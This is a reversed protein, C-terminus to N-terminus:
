FKQALERWQVTLRQRHEPAAIAILARARQEHGIGRLDAAGYETVVIDTDMRGLSVPGLAEGPAVIRSVKGKVGSAALAVIRLGGAAWVGRAFDSAGGPGSMLGAPGLEAYAQGFLDVEIASNIAVPTELRSTVGPAHTYSVPMFRYTVGSVRGYLRKSGIAVGGTVAVGDALAGADELDCVAEPILGSHIRLRRKGRLARLAAGPIKGLGTQITAGDPVFGAIYDGIARSADDDPADVIELLDQDTEVYANLTDFPIACPGAVRPLKSNIHAIRVPIRPWLEALFDVMPGFSCLGEADPPAAMFLAADIRVTRLRALIDAYCLPLFSSAEGAAKLQPTQFFTEVRCSPNALYTRVNLGPVFIGTFTMAGLAHGARVIAEALVLSEGSCAGVLVRGGQPLLGALDDLDLRSPAM